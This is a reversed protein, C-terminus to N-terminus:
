ELNETEGVAEAAIRNSQRAAARRSNKTYDDAREKNWVCECVLRFALRDRIRERDGKEDLRRWIRRSKPKGKRRKIKLFWLVLMQFFRLWDVHWAGQKICKVPLCRLCRISLSELKLLVCWIKISSSNLSKLKIEFLSWWLRTKLLHIKTLMQILRKIKFKLIQDVLTKPEDAAGDLRLSRTRKTNKHMRKLNVRM